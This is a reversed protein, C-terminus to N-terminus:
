MRREVATGCLPNEEWFFLNIRPDNDTITLLQEGRVLKASQLWSARGLVGLHPSHLCSGVPRQLLKQEIPAKLMVFVQLIPASLEGLEM